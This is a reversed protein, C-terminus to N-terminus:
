EGKIKMKEFAGDKTIEMLVFEVRDLPIGHQYCHQVVIHYVKMLKKLGPVRYYVAHSIIKRDQNM